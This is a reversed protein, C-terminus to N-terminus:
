GGNVRGSFTLAELILYVVIGANTMWIIVRITRFIELIASISIKSSKREEELREFWRQTTHVKQLWM